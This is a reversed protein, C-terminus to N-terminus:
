GIGDSAEDALSRELDELLSAYMDEGPSLRYVSLEIEADVLAECHPALSLCLRRAKFHNHQM